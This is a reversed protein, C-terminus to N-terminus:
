EIEMSHSPLFEEGADWATVAALMAKPALFVVGNYLANGADDTELNNIRCSLTFRRRDPNREVVTVLVSLWGIFDDREDATASDYWSRLEQIERDFRALHETSFRFLDAM